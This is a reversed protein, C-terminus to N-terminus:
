ERVLSWNRISYAVVGKQDKEYHVVCEIGSWEGANNRAKTILKIADTDSQEIHMTAYFTRKGGPPWAPIEIDIPEYALAVLLTDLQEKCLGFGYQMLGYSSAYLEEQHYREHSLHMMYIAAKWVISMYLTIAGILVVMVILSSGGSRKM